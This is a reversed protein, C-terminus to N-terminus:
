QWSAQAFRQSDPLLVDAPTCVLLSVTSTQHIQVCLPGKVTRKAAHQWGDLKVLLM